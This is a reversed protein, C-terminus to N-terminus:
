WLIFASGTGYIYLPNTVWADSVEAEDDTDGIEIAPSDNVICDCSELCTPDAVVEQVSV